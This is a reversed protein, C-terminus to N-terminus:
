KLAPISLQAFQGPKIKVNAYRLNETEIMFAERGTLTAALAYFDRGTLEQKYCNMVYFVCAQSQDTLGCRPRGAPIDNNLVVGELGHKEEVKKSFLTAGIFLGIILCAMSVLLWRKQVRKAEIFDEEDDFDEEFDDEDDKYDLEPPLGEIVYPNNNGVSNNAALNQAERATVLNKGVENSADIFENKEDANLSSSISSENDSNNEDKTSDPYVKEPAVPQESMPRIKPRKIKKLKPRVGQEAGNLTAAVGSVKESLLGDLNEDDVM